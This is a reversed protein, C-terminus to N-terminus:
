KKKAMNALSLSSTILALLSLFLGIGGMWKLSKTTNDSNPQNKSAEEGVMAAGFTFLSTILLVYPLGYLAYGTLSNEVRKQILVPILLIVIVAIFVMTISYYYLFLNDEVNNAIGENILASCLVAVLISVFLCFLSTGFDFRDAVSKVANTVSTTTSSM